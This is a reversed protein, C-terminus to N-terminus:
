ICDTPKPLGAIKSGQKAPGDPFLRYLYKSNGKDEGLKKRIAKTLVRAAPAIQYDDYYNRLFSVVEWADDSLEINETRAIIVALEPTWATVDTIYGADDTEIVTGNIEYAM